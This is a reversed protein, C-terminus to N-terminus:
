RFTLGEVEEGFIIRFISRTYDNFHDLILKRVNVYEESSRGLEIEIDKLLLALYRKQRRTIASMIDELDLGAIEKM